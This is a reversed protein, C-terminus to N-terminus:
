ENIWIWGEWVGIIELSQLKEAARKFAMRKADPTNTETIQVQECYRRWMAESCGRKNPRHASAPMVEGTDAIAQKLADLAVKAAGSPQRKPKILANTGWPSAISVICSTVAKIGDDLNVPDLQFKMTLGSQGDKSKTIIASREVESANVTIEIDAAAKLASSGRAGKSADKGIHHVVLVACGLEAGVRGCNDIFVSMDAVQNEDAGAMMRALTDFVILALPGPVQERIRAILPGIDRDRHGLDPSDAILFFPLGAPPGHHQRFATLRKRFGSAGEGTVYVVAGEEVHKGAWPKGMAVHLGLDAALFSKGCGPEGIILTLSTTRPVIDGVLWEPEAGLEIGDFAEVRFRLADSPRGNPGTLPPGYLAREFSVFTDDM